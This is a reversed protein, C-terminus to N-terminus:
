SLLIRTSPIGRVKKGCLRASGNTLETRFRCLREGPLSNTSGYKTAQFNSRVILVMDGLETDYSVLARPSCSYRAESFEFNVIYVVPLTIGEDFTPYGRENNRYVRLIGHNRIGEVVRLETLTVHSNRPLTQSTWSHKVGGEIIDQEHSRQSAQRTVQKSSQRGESIHTM